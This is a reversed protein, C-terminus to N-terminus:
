MRRYGSGILSPPERYISSRGMMSAKMRNFMSLPVPDSPLISDQMQSQEQQYLDQPPQFENIEELSLLVPCDLGLIWCFQTIWKLIKSKSYRPKFVRRVVIVENQSPANMQVSMMLPDTTQTLDVPKRFVIQESGISFIPDLALGCCSHIAILVATYFYLQRYYAEEDSNRYFDFVTIMKLCIPIVGQFIAKRIYFWFRDDDM